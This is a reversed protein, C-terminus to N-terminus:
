LSIIKACFEKGEGEIIAYSSKACRQATGPNILTVGGADFVKATHTHGYLAYECGAERAREALSLLSSKVGYRNGHTVLFKAEGVELIVESPLGPMIDCNGAVRVIPVAIAGAARDVDRNGDGLFVFYDCSNIESLTREIAGYNGHSDSFVALKIKAM